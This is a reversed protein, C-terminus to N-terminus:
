NLQIYITITHFISITLKENFSLIPSKMILVYKLENDNICIAFNSYILIYIKFNIRLTMTMAVNGYDDDDYNM